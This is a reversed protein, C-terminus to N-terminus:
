NESFRYNVTLRTEKIIGLYGRLYPDKTELADEAPVGKYLADHIIRHWGSQIFSYLRDYEDFGDPLATDRLLKKIRSKGSAIM